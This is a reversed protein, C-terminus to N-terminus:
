RCAPSAVPLFAPARSAMCLHHDEMPNLQKKHLKGQKNKYLSDTESSSKNKNNELPRFLLHLNSSQRLSYNSGLNVHFVCVCGFPPIPTRWRECQNQPSDNRLHVRLAKASAILGLFSRPGHQLVNKRRTSRAQSPARLFFLLFLPLTNTLM